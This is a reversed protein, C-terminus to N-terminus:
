ELHQIWGNTLGYAHLAKEAEAFEIETIRRGLVPDDKARDAPFYQSMLSVPIDPSLESAIFEFVRESRAFGCPLVLHRIMLGRVAIGDDDCTLVGVQRFMEKVAPRVVDWYDPAQSIRSSEDAGAYKIDTMYVDVIGDLLKLSELGEYGSCNYVIPISLGDRAAIALAAIFQPVVHSGTVLNINHAGRKQLNLMLRALRHPKAPAGNLLQSIPYNQCFRCRLNCGTFFITGSGCTGSIPPEEGTHINASAVGAVKAIGCFGAEGRLRNVRCRRPCLECSQMLAYARGARRALEGPPLLLYAVKSPVMTM